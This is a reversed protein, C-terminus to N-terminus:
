AMKHRTENTRSILNFVKVNANRIKHAVCIKDYPNNIINCSSKCKNKKLVILIFCPSMLTLTIEPRIKCELNNMSVCKLSNVNFVNCCFFIMVIGNKEM